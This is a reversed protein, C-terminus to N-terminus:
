KKKKVTLKYTTLFLELEQEKIISVENWASPLGMQAIAAYKAAYNM